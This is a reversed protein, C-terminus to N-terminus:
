ERNENKQERNVEKKAADVAESLRDLCTQCLWLVCDDWVEDDRLVVVASATLNCPGLRKTCRTDERIPVQQNCWECRYITQM